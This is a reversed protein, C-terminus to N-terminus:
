SLLAVRLALAAGVMIVGLTLVMGLVRMRLNRATFVFCWAHIMRGAVLAAGLGHLISAEYGNIEALAILLLAFPVYEGFNGHGRITREFRTNSGAGLSIALQQRGRIVAFTLGLYLLALLGAYFATIPM